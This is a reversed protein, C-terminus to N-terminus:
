AKCRLVIKDNVNNYSNKAFIVKCNSCFYVSVSKKNINNSNLGQFSGLLRANGKCSNCFRYRLSNAKEFSPYINEPINCVSNIDFCSISYSSIM